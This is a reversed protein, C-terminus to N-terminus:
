KSKDAICKCRFFLPCYYKLQENAGKWDNVTNEGGSQLTDCALYSSFTPLTFPMYVSHYIPNTILSKMFIKNSGVSVRRFLVHLSYSRRGFEVLQGRFKHGRTYTCRSISYTTDISFRHFKGSSTCFDDSFRAVFKLIYITFM